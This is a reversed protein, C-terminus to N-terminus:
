INDLTKMGVYILEVKYTKIYNILDQSNEIGNVYVLYILWKIDTFYNIYKPSNSLICAGSCYKWRIYDIIGMNKTDDLYMNTYMYLNM